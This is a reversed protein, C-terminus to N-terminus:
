AGIAKKAIKAAGFADPAFGDAGIKDAWEETVPGGGVFVKIRDGYKDKIAKLTDRQNYMTVMLLASLSVIQPKHKEVEKLFREISVDIGLDIVEFGVAEYMMAVLNKGLDHLDGKVTGIVIKGIKKSSSQGKLQPELIIMGKKLARSAVLMDPIFMKGKEFLEGVEMIGEILGKDLLKRPDINKDLAEKVLKETEGDNGKKVKEAIEKILDKM